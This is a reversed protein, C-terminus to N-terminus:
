HTIGNLVTGLAGNTVEAAVDKIEQNGVFVKVNVVPWHRLSRLQGGTFLAEPKGTKNVAMTTGPLLWGGSDYGGARDYAAPLSGYDAMAYRMSVLINSLPDESTGYAYPGVDHRPDRYGAYTPRHGAHPGGLPNRGRRQLGM